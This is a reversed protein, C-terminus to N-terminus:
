QGGGKNLNKLIETTQVNMRDAEDKANAIGTCINQVPM